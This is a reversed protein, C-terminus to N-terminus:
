AIEKRTRALDARKHCPTCMPQYHDPNVSYTRWGGPTLEARENPDAHDYAWQTAPAGCECGHLSARGRDRYVRRHAGAYSVRDGRWQPHTERSQIRVGDVSGTRALRSGHMSCLGHSNHAKGCGQISCIRM